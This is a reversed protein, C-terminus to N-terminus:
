RECVNQEKWSGKGYIASPRRSARNSVSFDRYVLITSGACKMRAMSLRVSSYAPETERERERERARESARESYTHTHTHTHTRARARSLSFIRLSLTRTYAWAFVCAFPPCAHACSENVHAYSVSPASLPLKVM